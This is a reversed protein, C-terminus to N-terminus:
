AARQTCAQMYLKAAESEIEPQLKEAAEYDGEASEATGSTTFVPVAVATDVLGNLTVKFEFQTDGVDGEDQIARGDVFDPFQVFEVVIVFPRCM